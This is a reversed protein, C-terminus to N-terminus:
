TGLKKLEETEMNLLGPENATKAVRNSLSLPIKQVKELQDMAVDHSTKKSSFFDFSYFEASIAYWFCTATLANFPNM